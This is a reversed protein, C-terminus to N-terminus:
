MGKAIAKQFKEFQKWDAGTLKIRLHKRSRWKIFNPETLVRILDRDTMLKKVGQNKADKLTPRWHPKGEPVLKYELQLAQVDLDKVLKLKQKVLFRPQVNIKLESMIKTYAVLEKKNKELVSKYEDPEVKQTIIIAQRLSPAFPISEETWPGYDVLIEKVPDRAAKIEFRKVVKLIQTGSEKKKQAPSLARAAIAFWTQDTQRIEAMVLRKRYDDSGEIEEIRGLLGDNIWATMRKGFEFLFWDYRKLINKDFLREVKNWQANKTISIM